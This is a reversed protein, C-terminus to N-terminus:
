NVPKMGSLSDWVFLKYSSDNEGKNFSVSASFESNYESLAGVAVNTLRGTTDYGALIIAAQAKNGTENTGTVTGTVVGDAESITPANFTLNGSAEGIYKIEAFLLVDDDGHTGDPYAVSGCTFNIVDGQKVAITKVVSGVNQTVSGASEFYCVQDNNKEIGFGAHLAYWKGDIEKGNGWRNTGKYTISIMGDKPANWKLNQKASDGKLNIYSWTNDVFDATNPVDYVIGPLFTMGNPSAFSSAGKIEPEVTEGNTDTYDLKWATEKDFTNWSSAQPKGSARYDVVANYKESEMEEITIYPNVATTANNTSSIKITVTEGTKLGVVENISGVSSAASPIHQKKILTGDSGYFYVDQTDRGWRNYVDAKVRAYMDKPSTFVFYIDTGGSVEAYSKNQIESATQASGNSFYIKANENDPDILWYLNKGSVYAGPLMKYNEDVTKGFYIGWTNDGGYSDGYIGRNQAAAYADNRYDWKGLGTFEPKVENLSFEPLTYETSLSGSSSTGSVTLGIRDGKKVSIRATGTGEGDGQSYRFLLTKIKDGNQHLDFFTNGLNHMRNARITVDVVMNDPATWTYVHNYGHLVRAYLVGGNDTLRVMGDSGLLDLNDSYNGFYWARLKADSRIVCKPTIESEKGTYDGTYAHVGWTDANGYTDQWSEGLPRGLTLWDGIFNWSRLTDEASVSVFGSVVTSLAILWATLKRCKKM